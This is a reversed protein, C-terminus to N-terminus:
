LDVLLKIDRCSCLSCPVRREPQCPQPWEPEQALSIYLPRPRILPALLHERELNLEGTTQEPQFAVSLIRRLRSVVFQFM